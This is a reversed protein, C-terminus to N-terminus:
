VDGDLGRRSAMYRDLTRSLSEGTALEYDNGSIPTQNPEDTVQYQGSRKDEIEVANEKHRFKARQM